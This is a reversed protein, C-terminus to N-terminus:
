VKMTELHFINKKTNLKKLKEYKKANRELKIWFFEVEFCLHDGKGPLTDADLTYLDNEADSDVRDRVAVVPLHGESM